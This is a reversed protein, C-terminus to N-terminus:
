RELVIVRLIGAASDGVFVLDGAVSHLARCHQQRVAVVELAGERGAVRRGRGVDLVTVRAHPTVDSAERQAVRRLRDRHARAAIGTMAAVTEGADGLVEDTDGPLDLRGGGEAALRWGVRLCKAM